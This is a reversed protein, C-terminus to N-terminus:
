GDGLNEFIVIYQIVKSNFSCRIFGNQSVNYLFLSYNCDAAKLQVKRGDAAKKMVDCVKLKSWIILLGTKAIMMMNESKNQSLAIKKLLKKQVYLHINKLKFNCTAPIMIVDLFVNLKVSGNSANGEIFLRVRKTNCRFLNTLM